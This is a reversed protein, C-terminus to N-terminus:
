FFFSGDIFIFHKLLLEARLEKPFDNTSKTLEENYLQELSVGTDMSNAAFDRSFPVYVAEHM